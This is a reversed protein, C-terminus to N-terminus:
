GGVMSMLKERVVRPRLGAFRCVSAFARSGIWAVVEARVSGADDGAILDVGRLDAVARLVVSQWLRRERAPESDEPDVHM